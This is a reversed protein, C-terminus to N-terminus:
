ILHEGIGQISWVTVRGDHPSPYSTILGDNTLRKLYISVMPQSKNMAATIEKTTPLEGLFHQHMLFAMVLAMNGQAPQHQVCNNKKEENRLNLITVIPNM